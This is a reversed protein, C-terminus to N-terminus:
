LGAVARAFAAGREEYDRFRGFSPAGPSMLVVGGAPTIEAAFTVAHELSELEHLELPSQGGLIRQRERILEAIRPGSDPLTLVAFAEGALVADAFSTWDLGRDLGGVLITTPGDRHSRLAAMASQPTTSISDDVFKLGLKSAVTDLRHRLGTLSPLAGIAQPLDAGVAKLVTLAACLNSLNHEGPLPFDSASCLRLKGDWIAGEGAHMGGPHNFFRKKGRIEILHEMSVPDSYNLVASGPGPGSFIRLKDRYYNEVSGHWDLHEPHLNLLVAIEPTAELDFTQFSSLEIVWLEPRPDHDLLALLPRGINGGLEVTAGTARLLQTLLNATTSKGKTGTICLIREGAHEEFWLQTGSVFEVGNKRAARIEKRYPSIGPSKLVLEFRRLTEELARDGVVELAPISAEAAARDRDDDPVILTVPMGPFRESLAKLAARGERGFGWVALRKGELRRIGM